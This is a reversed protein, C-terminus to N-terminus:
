AYEPEPEVPERAAAGYIRAVSAEDLAAPPGDFVVRGQALAGGWHALAFALGIGAFGMGAPEALLWGLPPYALWVFNMTRAAVAHRGAGRLISAFPNAWWAPLAGLGFLLAALLTTPAALALICRAVGGTM